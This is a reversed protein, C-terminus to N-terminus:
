MEFVYLLCENNEQDKSTNHVCQTDVMILLTLMGIYKSVKVAAGAGVRVYHAGTQARPDIQSKTKNPEVSKQIQSSGKRLIKETQEAGKELGWSIWEAASLLLTCCLTM